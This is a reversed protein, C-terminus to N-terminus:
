RRGNAIRSQIKRPPPDVFVKTSIPKTPRSLSEEIQQFKDTEKRATTTKQPQTHTSQKSPREQTEPWILPNETDSLRRKIFEPGQLRIEALLENHKERDEFVVLPYRIIQGTKHDTATRAPLSFYFNENRKSVYVGLINIGIEPLNIRMTGTLGKETRTLPYFEVIEVKM